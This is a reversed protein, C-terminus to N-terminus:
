EWSSPPRPLCSEQRKGCGSRSRRACHTVHADERRLDHLHVQDPRPYEWMRLLRHGRRAGSSRSSPTHRQRYLAFKLSLAIRLVQPKSPQFGNVFDYEPDDASESSSGVSTLNYYLKGRKDRQLSIGDSLPSDTNLSFSDDSMSPVVGLMTRQLTNQNQLWAKGRDTELIPRDRQEELRLRELVASPDGPYPRETNMLSGSSRGDLRVRVSGGSTDEETSPARSGINFIRSRSPKLSPKSSSSSGASRSTGNWLKKLLSADKGKAQPARTDKSSITVADDDQPSGSLEGPLFSLESGEPPDEERSAVSSTESLSPGDYDICIAVDMAIKPHRSSGRSTFISGSSAVSGEDGSHYFDIAEFLSTEDHIFFLEKDDDEWQITFHGTL